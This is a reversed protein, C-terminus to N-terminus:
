REVVRITISRDDTRGGTTSIRNTVQYVQGPTGGSLWVTATKTTSSESDVTIGVSAIFQSNLITEGEDLWENWDWVWDLVADPDKKHDLVAM